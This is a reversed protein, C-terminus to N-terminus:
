RGGGGAVATGPGSDERLGGRGCEAAPSAAAVVDGLAATRIGTGNRGRQRGHAVRQPGSGTAASPNRRPTRSPTSTPCARIPTARHSGSPIIAIGTSVTGRWVPS